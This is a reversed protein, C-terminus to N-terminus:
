TIEEAEFPSYHNGRIITILSYSEMTKLIEEREIKRKIKASKIGVLASKIKEKVRTYFNMREDQSYEKFNEKKFEISTQWNLSQRKRNENLNNLAKEVSFNEILQSKFEKVANECAGNHQPVRPLNKLHIIYNKDLFDTVEKSCFPSGNDTCLVLPLKNENKMEKLTEITAKSRLTGGCARANIELSSRDKYVIYDEGRRLSAGDMAIVTGANKTIVKQRMSFKIFARRKNRRTKLKGIIERVVRVRVKPLAKIVPRSGPYGQRQWERAIMIKEKLSVKVKRRGRTKKIKIKALTKWSRLTRPTLNLAAAVIRQSGHPARTLWLGVREKLESPYDM